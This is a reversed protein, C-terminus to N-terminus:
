QIEALKRKKKEDVFAAKLKTITSRPHTFRIALVKGRKVRGGTYPDFGYLVPKVTGDFINSLRKSRIFKLQNVDNIGIHKVVLRFTGNGQKPLRVEQGSILVKMVERFFTCVINVDRQWWSFFKRDRQIVEKVSLVQKKPKSM